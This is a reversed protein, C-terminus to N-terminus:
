RGSNQCRVFTAVEATRLPQDTVIGPPQPPGLITTTAPGKEGTQLSGFAWVPPTYDRVDGAM